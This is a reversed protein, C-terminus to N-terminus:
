FCDRKPYLFAAQANGLLVLEEITANTQCYIRELSSNPYKGLSVLIASNLESAVYEIYSPEFLYSVAPDSLDTYALTSFAALLETRIFMNAKAEEAYEEKLKNGYAMVEAFLRTELLADQSDNNDAIKQKKIKKGHLSTDENQELHGNSRKSSSTTAVQLSKAEYEGNHQVPKQQVRKVMEMFRRCKLRFALMPNNELLDPYYDSCKQFVRDIDGELVARRIDQRYLTDVDVTSSDLLLEKHDGVGGLSQGGKNIKLAKELAKAAKTYGHHKLYEVVIEDATQATKEKKEEEKVIRSLLMQRENEVWQVIDFVFPKTGFNAEIKEGATKFGVCPFLDTTEKIKRFATGLFIGNKTYFATMTRFDVGCGIVDGTGFKPGYSQGGSGSGSYIKGTEGHYGWSHDEWGPFRDLSNLKRCFGIGIQGDIGKSLVQIEFYYVGCQRRMAHNARASSVELEDKGNGRYTLQLHDLSMDIFEGKAKVDWASPLRLDHLALAMQFSNNTLYIQLAEYEKSSPIRKTPHTDDLQKITQFIDQQRQVLQAYISISLYSPIPSQGESQRAYFALLEDKFTRQKFMRSLAHLSSSSSNLAAAISPDGNANRRSLRSRVSFESVFPYSSM